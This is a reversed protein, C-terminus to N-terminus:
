RELRVGATSTCRSSNSVTGCAPQSFRIHGAGRNAAEDDVPRVLLRRSVPAVLALGAGEIERLTTARCAVHHGGRIGPKKVVGADENFERQDILNARAHFSLPLRPQEHRRDHGGNAVAGLCRRAALVGGIRLADMNVLKGIRLGDQM